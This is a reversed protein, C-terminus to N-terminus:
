AQPEWRFFRIALLLGAIGWAAVIAVDSWAFPTGLFGAQMGVAFHRIPFVRAVWLVWSPTSNGFAIFIGSLFLLPLIAVNVVAAAADANPIAATIALGLACFTAAGAALMVAFRLLTVGGPIEAGYAIRGFVATIAVLLVAVLLAHLVQGALFSTGPLPTGNTRKLIGAERQTTIGIAINNFCATILGFAAMAAVYYTSSTVSRTGIDVTGHGLLSTFIVLFMLPFAFTFFARAPNRWFAKNVWRVQELALRLTRM